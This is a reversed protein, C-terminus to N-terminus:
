NPKDSKKDVKHPSQHLPPPASGVVVEILHIEPQERLSDEKNSLLQGINRVILEQQDRSLSSFFVGATPAIPLTDIQEELAQGEQFSIVKEKVLVQVEYRAATRTLLSTSLARGPGLYIHAHAPPDGAVGQSPERAGCVKIHPFVKPSMAM